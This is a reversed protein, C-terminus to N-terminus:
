CGRGFLGCGGRFLRFPAFLVRGVFRRMPRRERFYGMTRRVPGHSVLCSGDSCAGAACAGVACSGNTCNSVTPVANPPALPHARLDEDTPLPQVPPEEVNRAVANIIPVTYRPSPNVQEERYVAQSIPVSLEPHATFAVPKPPPNVAPALQSQPTSIADPLAKPAPTPTAPHAAIAEAEAIALIVSLNSEAVTLSAKKKSGEGDCGICAAFALAALLFEKM